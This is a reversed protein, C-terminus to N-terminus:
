GWVRHLLTCIDLNNPEAMMSIGFRVDAGPPERERDWGMLHDLRREGVFVGPVSTNKSRLNFPEKIAM